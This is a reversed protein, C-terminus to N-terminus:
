EARRLRRERLLRAADLMTATSADSMGTAGLVAADVRKVVEGWRGDRLHRDLETKQKNLSVWAKTIVESSPVPLRAAEKPELKLIGGGYSRGSIEAGLMTVSNMAVIPLAELIEPALEARLRVGHMSNVFAAGARNAIIRPFNHSMYTFFFDPPSSMPPRWWPTRIQCKYADNVGLAEGHATYAVRSETEDTPEPRFLWVREDADRLDRWHQLTFASGRLHKTGPPSIRALQTEALGFRKRTTESLTFFKNAGTVIGLETTGYESLPVFHQEVTSRYIGRARQPLLLDTWKGEAPPTVNLHAYAGLDDLDDASEVHYLSFADCGGEGEALLLVVDALADEFQLREFLVLSVREFRDRLWTRIPEAYSVTLLEAPLVMALRGGPKLFGASHVLAAAWSSALGNLRVGQRLAAEVSWRRSQGIHEQYRVFPPNGVVADVFPLRAGPMDPTELAFFDSEILRADLGEAELLRLASSLSEGHLDVGFLQADLEDASQGLARLREGAALLFVAEGCTPDLVTLSPDDRVAWKVLHDAIPKPTFFAGRAKRLELSDDTTTGVSEFMNAVM